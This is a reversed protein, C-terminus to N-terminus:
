VFAASPTATCFKEKKIIFSKASTGLVAQFNLFLLVPVATGTSKKWLVSPVLVLTGRYQGGIVM